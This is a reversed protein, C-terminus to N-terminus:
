VLLITPLTLHTYSVARAHRSHLWSAGTKESIPLKSIWPTKSKNSSNFDSRTSVLSPCKKISVVLAHVVTSIFVPESVLGAAAKFALRAVARSRGLCSRRRPMPPCIIKSGAGIEFFSRFIKSVDSLVAKLSSETSVLITPQVAM